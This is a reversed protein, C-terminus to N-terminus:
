KWRKQMQVWEKYNHLQNSNWFDSMAWEQEYHIDRISYVNIAYPPWLRGIHYPVYTCVYQINLLYQIQRNNLTWRWWGNVRKVVAPSQLIPRVASSDAYNWHVTSEFSQVGWFVITDWCSSLSGSHSFLTLAFNFTLWVGKKVAKPGNLFVEKPESSPGGSWDVKDM